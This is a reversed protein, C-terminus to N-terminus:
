WLAMSCGNYASPVITQRGLIEFGRIALNCQALVPSILTQSSVSGGISATFLGWPCFPFGQYNLLFYVWKVYKHALNSLLVIGDAFYPRYQKWENKHQEQLCLIQMTKTGFRNATDATATTLPGGVGSRVPLPSTMSPDDRWKVRRFVDSSRWSIKVVKM